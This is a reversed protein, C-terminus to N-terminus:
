GLLTFVAVPKTWFQESTDVVNTVKDFFFVHWVRVLTRFDLPTPAGGVEGVQMPKSSVELFRFLGGLPRPNVILRSQPDNIKQSCLRPLILFLM